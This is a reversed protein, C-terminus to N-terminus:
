ETAQLKELESVLDAPEARKRYNPDIFTYRVIGDSDIIYTATLPLKSKSDEGHRESLKAYDEFLDAIIGLDFVLGYKEAIQLDVDTLIPFPVGNEEATEASYDPLEPTLALVTAGKSSFEDAHDAMARM